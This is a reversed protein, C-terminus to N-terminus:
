MFTLYSNICILNNERFILRFLFTKLCVTEKSNSISKYFAGLLCEDQHLRREDEDESSTKLVDKDLRIHEGMTM